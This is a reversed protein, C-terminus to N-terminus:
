YGARKREWLNQCAVCRTVGGVLLLRRQEPIEEGCDECDLLNPQLRQQQVAAQVRNVAASATQIAIIQAIEAEEENNYEPQDNTNM